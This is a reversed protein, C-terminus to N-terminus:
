EHSGMTARFLSLHRNKISFNKAIGLILSGFTNKVRPLRSKVLLKWMSARNLQRGRKQLM